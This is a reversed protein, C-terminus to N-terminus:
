YENSISMALVLVDGGKRGHTLGERRVGVVKSHCRMGINWFYRHTVGIVVAVMVARIVAGGRGWGMLAVAELSLM